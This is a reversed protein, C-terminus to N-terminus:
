VPRGAGGVPPCRRFGASAGLAAESYTERDAPREERRPLMALLLRKAMGLIEDTRATERSVGHTAPQRATARQGAM